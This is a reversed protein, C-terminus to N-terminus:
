VICSKFGRGERTIPYLKNLMQNYSGFTTKIHIEGHVSRIDHSPAPPPPHNNVTDEPFSTFQVRYVFGWLFRFGLLGLVSAGFGLHVDLNLTM